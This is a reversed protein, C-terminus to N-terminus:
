QSRTVGFSKVFTRLNIKNLKNGTKTEQVLKKTKKGFANGKNLLGHFRGYSYININERLQTFYYGEFLNEAGRYDNLEVSSM